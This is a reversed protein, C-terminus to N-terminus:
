FVSGGERGRSVAQKIELIEKHLILKLDNVSYKANDPNEYDFADTSDIPLEIAFCGLKSNTQTLGPVIHSPTPQNVQQAIGGILYNQGFGQRNKPSKVQRGGVQVSNAGSLNPSQSQNLARLNEQRMKTLIKERLPDRVGDFIKHHICEYSSMRFYPNFKLMNKM